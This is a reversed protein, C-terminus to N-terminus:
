FPPAKSNKGRRTANEAAAFRAIGDALARAMRERGADEKIFAADAANSLVVMEVTVVPVESFISGTLAGQRSGVLTRSDGRVGGDRLVDALGAAMGAHVAEAARRSAEIVAPSPGTTGQATGRRDPYYVAFGSETSADCHLRVVLAARERNAAEARARNEVLQREEGKTLCVRYGRAELLAKLKLAGAWAVYVESTGNQEEAGSSVESPHGPDICVVAAGGGTQSKAASKTAAGRATGNHKPRKQAPAHPSALLLVLSLLLKTKM